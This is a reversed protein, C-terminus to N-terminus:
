TLKVTRLTVSVRRGRPIARGDVVDDLRAAIGHTWDYRSEGTMLVLSGPALWLPVHRKDKTHRFDMVCGSGLTISVIVEGFCPECDIHAGIGQGAQYENVIVQEALQPMYGEQQVREALRMLWEPLAGLKLSADIMRKRYDYRYGYHQVRRKLETLWIQQDITNLLDNQAEVTLFDEVYRLGTIPM